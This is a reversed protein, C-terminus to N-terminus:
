YGTYATKCAQWDLENIKAINTFEGFMRKGASM